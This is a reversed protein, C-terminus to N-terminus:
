PNTVTFRDGDLFGAFETKGGDAVLQFAIGAPGQSYRKAWVIRGQPFGSALTKGLLNDLDVDPAATIQM